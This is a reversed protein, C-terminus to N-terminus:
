SDGIEEKKADDKVGEFSFESAADVVKWNKKKADYRNEAVLTVEADPANEMIVTCDVERVWKGKQIRPYCSLRTVSVIRAKLWDYAEAQAWMTIRSSRNPSRIVVRTSQKGAKTVTRETNRMDVVDGLRITLREGPDGAVM